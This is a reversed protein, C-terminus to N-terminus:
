QFILRSNKRDFPFAFCISHFINFKIFVQHDVVLKANTPIILGSCVLSSTTTIFFM